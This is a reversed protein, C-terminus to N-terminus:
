AKQADLAAIEDDTLWRKLYEVGIEGKVYAEKLLKEESLALLTKVNDRTTGAEMAIYMAQALDDHKLNFKHDVKAFMVGLDNTKGLEKCAAKIDANTLYISTKM